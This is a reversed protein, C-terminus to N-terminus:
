CTAGEGGGEPDGGATCGGRAGGPAMLLKRVERQRNHRPHLPRPRSQTPLVSRSRHARPHLALRSRPSQLPVSM